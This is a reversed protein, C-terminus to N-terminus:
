NRGGDRFGIKHNEACQLLMCFQALTKLITAFYLASWHGEKMILFVGEKKKKRRFSVFFKNSELYQKTVM